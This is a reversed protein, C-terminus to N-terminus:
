MEGRNANEDSMQAKYIQEMKDAHYDGVANRVMEVTFGIDILTKYMEDDTMYIDKAHQMQAIIETKVDIDDTGVIWVKDDDDKLRLVFLALGGRHDNLRVDADPNLTSLVEMMKKVKM